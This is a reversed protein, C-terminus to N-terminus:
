LFDFFSFPISSPSSGPHLSRWRQKQLGFRNYAASFMALVSRLNELKRPFCRSRRALTPIYHRLDANVGEVTFTDNKNRSNYIHRGPFVVDLYGVYGDTCYCEAEAGADVMQQIAAATKDRSVVCGLLQRPMRNVMTLIYINERTVTKSKRELFWYLEDLEAIEAKPSAERGIGLRAAGKKDM